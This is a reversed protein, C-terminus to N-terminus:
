ICKKRSLSLVAAPRDLGWLEDYNPFKRLIPYRRTPDLLPLLRKLVVNVSPTRHRVYLDIPDLRHRMQLKPDYNLAGAGFFKFGNAIGWNIMDRVAYHYLHLDIAVSYDLGIYEAYLTDGEIMCLTFAVIRGNQRWLFFRVKDPMRSGLGAFFGKTLKDFRLKSRHYVQMYLPYIEDIVASVGTAVEMVIPTDKEAAKFKRRLKARTASKLARRAYDEFSEYDINLRTNPLSPMRVFGNSVFSALAGRYRAPFEKLVILGAKLTRAHTTLERALCEIQRRRVNEAGDDIHGEGAVCGVMLTRLVMFGPWLRRIREVLATLRPHAGLLIDQEVIFFPQFASISGDEDRLGFYGYTFEPNITDEILEYYRRDKRKSAFARTWQPYRSLDARSLIEIQSPEPSTVGSGNPKM